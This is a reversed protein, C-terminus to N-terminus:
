DPTGFLAEDFGDELLPPPMNEPGIFAAVVPFLEPHEAIKTMAHIRAAVGAPDFRAGLRTAFHATLRLRRMRERRETVYPELTRVSWDDTECLRDSVIRVDRFAISLGQGIIPDNYGAADGVLVAGPVAPQETWADQSPYSRCPGIPKAAAIEASGPVADMRFCDLFARTGESGSFRGRGAADYDAYLRARGNGQPFILYQIDGVKGISQQTEPWERLGEVLLGAILHDIPDEHLAIGLQRRVRSSRGDAGVILRCRVEAEEGDHRYRVSPREGGNVEVDRVDRLVVAGATEARELLGRQMVVHEISLAGPADSISALDIAAAEAAEAPVLEDYSVQRTLHHGGWARLADYIGLKQTEVVGWPALWEGRVRDEFVRTRELVLVSKGAAALRAALTSGAVGGGVVVLDFSSNRSLAV